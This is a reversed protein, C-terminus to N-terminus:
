KESFPDSSPLSFVGSIPAGRGDYLPLKKGKHLSWVRVMSRDLPLPFSRQMWLPASFPNIWESFFGDKEEESPPRWEQVIGCSHQTLPRSSLFEFSNGPREGDAMGRLEAYGGISNEDPNSRVVSGKRVYEEGLGESSDTDPESSFAGGSFTPVALTMSLFFISWLCKM